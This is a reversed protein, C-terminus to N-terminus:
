ILNMAQRFATDINQHTDQTFAGIMAGALQLLKKEETIGLVDLMQEIRASLVLQEEAPVKRSKPLSLLPDTFLLPRLLSSEYVFRTQRNGKAVSWATRDDEAPKIWELAFAIQCQIFDRTTLFRTAEFDKVGMSIQFFIEELKENDIGKVTAIHRCDEPIQFISYELTGHLVTHAAEHRIAGARALKSFKSLRDNSILLRPYGRSVNYACPSSEDIGTFTLGLKFNEERLFGNLNDQTDFLYIAIRFPVRDGFRKYCDNIVETVEKKFSGAVNGRTFFGLEFSAM